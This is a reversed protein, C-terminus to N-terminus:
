ARGERRSTVTSGSPTAICDDRRASTAPIGHMEGMRPHVACTTFEGVARSLPEDTWFPRAEMEDDAEDGDGLLKVLAMGSHAHAPPSREGAPM